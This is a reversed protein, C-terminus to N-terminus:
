ESNAKMAEWEERTGTYGGRVADAYATANGLIMDGM